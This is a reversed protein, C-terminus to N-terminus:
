NRIDVDWMMKCHLTEYFSINHPVALLIQEEAKRLRITTGNDIRYSRNDVSLMAKGNRLHIRLEIEVTDPVVVPRMGFNHPALPTLLLCGCEPAVIPGGASLSYATSGTPTSVIVGDGNYQAVMQGDVRAEVKIMTADMRHVTVENLATAEGEIQDLGEIRLMTRPQIRLRGEAIDDFLAVVGERTATTLFGLHGFNVGVVPISRDSLRHIGELLTGDGGCCLMVSGEPQPGTQDRYIKASDIQVGLLREIAEAFEENIAYDFGYREILPLLHGLDDATHAIQPRSFLVIKMRPRFFILLKVDDLSRKSATAAGVAPRFTQKSPM